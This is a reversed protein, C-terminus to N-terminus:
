GSIMPKPRTLRGKKDYMESAKRIAGWPVWDHKEWLEEDKANWLRFYIDDSRQVVYMRTQPNQPYPLYYLGREDKMVDNLRKSINQNKPWAVKKNRTSAM